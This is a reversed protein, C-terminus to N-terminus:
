GNNTKDIGPFVIVKNEEKPKKKMKFNKLLMRRHERFELEGGTIGLVVGLVLAAAFGALIGVNLMIFVMLFFIGAGFVVYFLIILVRGAGSKKLKM